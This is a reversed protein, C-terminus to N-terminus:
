IDRNYLADMYAAKQQLYMEFDHICSMEKKLEAVTKKDVPIDFSYEVYRMYYNYPQTKNLFDLFSSFTEIAEEAISIDQLGMFGYYLENSLFQYSLPVLGSRPLPVLVSIENTLGHSLPNRYKERYALLEGYIESLKKSEFNFLLKFRERWTTKRFEWFNIHPQEFAYVADLIFELYSYFAHIMSYAYNFVIRNLELRKNILRTIVERSGSTGSNKKSEAIDRENQKADGIADKTKRVYFYYISSLTHSLNKIFFNGGEASRKLSEFLVKDLNKSAVKIKKKIELAAKNSFEDNIDSEISWTGFKYDRILFTRGKYNFITHWWVKDMRGYDPLGLIEILVVRVIYAPPDFNRISINHFGFIDPYNDLPSIGTFIRVIKEKASM